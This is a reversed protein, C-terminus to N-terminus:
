PDNTREGLVAAVLRRFKSTRARGREARLATVGIPNDKPMVSNKLMRAVVAHCEAYDAPDRVAQLMSNAVIDAMQVGVSHKSDVFHINKGIMRKADIVGDAPSYDDILPHGPMHVGDILTIPDRISWAPLWLVILKRLVIDQRTGVADIEYRFKRFCPAHRQAIFRVISCNTAGVIEQTLCFLHALQGRGLNGVQRGLTDVEERMKPFTYNGVQAQIMEKMQHRCTEVVDRDSLDFDLVTTHVMVDPFADLLDAFLQRPPGSLLRGKVEGNHKETSPLGKALNGFAHFVEDAATEPIAM